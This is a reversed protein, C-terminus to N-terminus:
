CIDVSRTTVPPRHPYEPVLMLVAHIAVVFYAEDRAILGLAEIM